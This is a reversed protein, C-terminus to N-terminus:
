KTKDSNQYEDLVKGTPYSYLLAGLSVIACYMAGNYDVGYYIFINVILAIFLLFMRTLSKKSYLKLFANSDLSAGKNMARSFGKLALPIIAMTLMIACVEIYYLDQEGLNTALAGKTLYGTEFAAIAIITAFISTAFNFKLAKLVNARNM